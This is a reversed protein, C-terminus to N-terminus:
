RPAGLAAVPRAARGHGERAARGAPALTATPEVVEINLRQSPSPTVLPLGHRQVAELLRPRTLLDNLMARGQGLEHVYAQEQKELDTIRRGLALQEAHMRVYHVGLGAILGSLLLARVVTGLGVLGEGRRRNTAM